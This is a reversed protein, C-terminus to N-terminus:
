YDNFFEELDELQIDATGSDVGSGSMAQASNLVSFIDFESLSSTEAAAYNQQGVDSIAMALSICDSSPMSNLQSQLGSSSAANTQAHTTVQSNATPVLAVTSSNAVASFNDPPLINQSILKQKLQTVYSVCEPSIIGNDMQICWQKFQVSYLFVLDIYVVAYDYMLNM